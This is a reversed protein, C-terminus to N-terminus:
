RRQMTVLVGSRTRLTLAPEPVVEHGPVLAFRYCQAITALILQGELMAFNNGICLRPGAGFPLYAFRPRAAVQEPSFREPDFREPNDWFDPHRHLTYASYSIFANAPIPYDGITDENIAKRMLFWAPPYLRM